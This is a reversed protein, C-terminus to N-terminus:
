KSCLELPRTPLRVCAVIKVSLFTPRIASLAQAAVLANGVIPVHENLVSCQANLMQLQENSRTARRCLALGDRRTGALSFHCISL